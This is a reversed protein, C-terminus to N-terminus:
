HKVTIKLPLLQKKLRRVTWTLEPRPPTKTDTQLFHRGYINKLFPNVTAKLIVTEPIVAYCAAIVPLVANTPLRQKDFVGNVEMFRVMKKLCKELLGWEDIMKQLDISFIGNKNPVKGQLLAATSLVLEELEFYNKVNPHAKKLHKILDHLSQGTKQEAEAVIIDFQSLPKSNTNMNIFVQLAVDKDTSPPLSLYPLNYHNIAERLDRIKNIISSFYQRYEKADLPEDGDIHKM